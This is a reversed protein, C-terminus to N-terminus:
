RDRLSRPVRAFIPIAEEVPAIVIEVTADVIVTCGNFKFSVRSDDRSPGGTSSYLQNLADPDFTEFLPDLETPPTNTVAAVSGVVATTVSEDRQWDSHLRYTSTEPDFTIETEPDTTGM